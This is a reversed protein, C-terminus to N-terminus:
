KNPQTSILIERFREMKFDQLLLGSLDFEKQMDFASKKFHKLFHINLNKHEAM